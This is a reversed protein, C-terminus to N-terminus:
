RRSSCGHRPRRWCKACVLTQIIQRKTESPHLPSQEDLTWKSRGRPFVFMVRRPYLWDPGLEDSACHHHFRPPSQWGGAACVGVHIGPSGTSLETLCSPTAPPVMRSPGQNGCINRGWTLKPVWMQSLPPGHERVAKERTSSVLSLRAWGRGDRQKQREEGDGDRDRDTM